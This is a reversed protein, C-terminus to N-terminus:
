ACCRGPLAGAYEAVARAPDTGNALALLVVDCVTGIGALIRVTVDEAVVGRKNHASVM